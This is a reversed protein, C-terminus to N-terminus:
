KKVDRNSEKSLFELYIYNIFESNNKILFFFQTCFTFIVVFAIKLKIIYLNINVKSKIKKLNTVICVFILLSLTLVTEILYLIFKIFLFQM